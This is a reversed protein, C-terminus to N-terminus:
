TTLGEGRADKGLEAQCTQTETEALDKPTVAASDVDCGHRAVCAMPQSTPTTADAHFPVPRGPAM